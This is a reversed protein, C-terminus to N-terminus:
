TRNLGGVAELHERLGEVTQACGMRFYLILVISPAM